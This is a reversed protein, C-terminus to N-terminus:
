GLYVGMEYAYASFETLKFDSSSSTIEVKCRLKQGSVNFDFYRGTGIQNTGPLVRTVDSWVVGGDVSVSVKVTAGSSTVYGIFVRQINKLKFPLDFDFDKSEWTATISSGDDSKLAESFGYVYGDSSGFREQVSITSAGAWTDTASDWTGVEEDWTTTDSSDTYLIQGVCTVNDALSYKTWQLNDLNLVWCATNVSSTGEPIFLLIERSENLYTACVVHVANRNLSRYFERRIKNGIPQLDNGTFFYLNDEGVIFHQGGIDVLSFPCLLGQGPITQIFYFPNYADGTRAGVWINSEKYVVLRDLLKGLNTIPDPTQDFDNAGSGTATWDTITLSSWKLRTSIGDVFGGIVRDAFSVLYKARSAVLQVFDNTGDWSMINNVGQCFVLNNGEAVIMSFLDSGIGDLSDVVNGTFEVKAWAGGTFQWLNGTNTGSGTMAVPIRTGDVKLFEGIGTVPQGLVLGIAAYGPRLVLAGKDFHFNQCVTAADYPLAASPLSYDLGQLPRITPIQIM